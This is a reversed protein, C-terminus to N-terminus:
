RAGPLVWSSRTLDGDLEGVEPCRVGPLVAVDFVEQVQDEFVTHAIVRGTRLDVAWVGCQLQGTASIPLGGFTATERVQSTGVFAVGEHISLGRTFGPLEALVSLAGVQPDWVSITGRGSELVYLRGEHWRPSHPMSLGEVVVRGSPVEMVVGGAAKDARWGGDTDGTGLATVYRPVGDVLAMGNLHCRDEAVLASVFPPTWRPVISHADDLTALANFKTAVVWLGERGVALDHVAIDGTVHINRPLFCADHSGRPELDAAMAPNDRFDVVQSRLGLAMGNATRAIGMPRDFARLHVGLQGDVARLSVLRNSQYTSILLSSGLSRLLAAMGQQRVSLGTEASSPLVSPVQEEVHELVPALTDELSTLVAAPLERPEVALLQRAGVGVAAGVGAHWGLGLRAFLGQSGTEPEAALRQLSVASWRARPLAAIARVGAAAVLRFQDLVVADPDATPISRWQAPLALSWPEGEWGALGPHRVVRGSRWARALDAVARAPERHVHVFAAEPFLEAYLSIRLTDAPGAILPRFEVGPPPEVKSRVTGIARSVATGLREVDDADCEEGRLGLLNEDSLSAIAQDVEASVDVVGPAM